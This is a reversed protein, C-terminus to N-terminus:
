SGHTVESFEIELARLDVRAGCWCLAGSNGQIAGLEALVVRVARTGHEADLAAPITVTNRDPDWPTAVHHSRRIRVCM